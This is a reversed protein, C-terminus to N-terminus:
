QLLAFIKSKRIKAVQNGVDIRLKPGVTSDNIKQQEYWQPDTGYDQSTPGTDLTAKVPNNGKGWQANNGWGMKQRESALVEVHRQLPLLILDINM